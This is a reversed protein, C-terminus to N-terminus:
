DQNQNTSRDDNQERKHGLNDKAQAFAFEAQIDDRSEGHTRCKPETFIKCACDDGHHIGPSLKQFTISLLSRLTPHRLKQRSRRAHSQPDSIRTQRINGDGLDDGAIPKENACAIQDRDVAM